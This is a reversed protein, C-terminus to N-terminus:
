SVGGTKTASFILWLRKRECCFHTLGARNLDNGLQEPQFFSAQGKEMMRRQLREELGPKLYLTWGTFIGGPRLIRSIEGWIPLVNSFLHLAGCCNVRDVSQDEFPLDFIDGRLFLISSLNNRRALKKGRSLMSLSIDLGYIQAAPFKRSFARAYHGTGCALDAVTEPRGTGALLLITDLEAKMSIGSGARTLFARWIASEYFISFVPSQNLKQILRLQPDVLPVHAAFDPIGIHVPLNHGCRSCFVAEIDTPGSNLKINGSSACQPCRLYDQTFNM